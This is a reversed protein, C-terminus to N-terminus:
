NADLVVGIRVALNLSLGCDPHEFSIHLVVHFTPIGFLSLDRELGTEGKKCQGHSLGGM